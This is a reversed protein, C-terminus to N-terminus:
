RGWEEVKGEESITLYFYEVNRPLPLFDPSPASKEECRKEDEEDVFITWVQQETNYIM